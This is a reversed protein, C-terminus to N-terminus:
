EWMRLELSAAMAPSIHSHFFQGSRVMGFPMFALWSRAGYLYVSQRMTQDSRSM